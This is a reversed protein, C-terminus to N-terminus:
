LGLYTDLLTTDRGLEDTGAEAAVAGKDIFVARDCMAMAMDVNQEVLVIAMRERKARAGLITAIDMVISPQVGESPEDLLLYSPNSRLARAIALQQQQGGSLDGARASRREALAPFLAYAEESVDRDLAGLQLNEEVSFAQFLGRGQPVYSLGASAIRHTPRDDLREGDLTINGSTCSVLGMITRLLTSKGVGNRGLVAVAEGPSIKLSLKELVVGGDYGSTIDRCELM